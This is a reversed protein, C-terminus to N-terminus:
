PAQLPLSRFNNAGNPDPLSGFVFAGISTGPTTLGAVMETKLWVTITQNVPLNGLAYTVYGTTPWPASPDSYSPGPVVGASSGLVRSTPPLTLTLQVNRADDDNDNQIVVQTLTVVSSGTASSTVTMSQIKVDSSVVPATAASTSSTFALAATVLTLLLSGLAPLFRPLLTFRSPTQALIMRTEM